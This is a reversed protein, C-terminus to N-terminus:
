DSQKTGRVKFMDDGFLRRVAAFHESVEADTLGQLQAYISLPLPAAQVFNQNATAQQGLNAVVDADTMYDDPPLSLGVSGAGGAHELNQDINQSANSNPAQQQAQVNLTVQPQQVGQRRREQPRAPFTSCGDM